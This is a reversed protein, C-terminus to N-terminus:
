DAASRSGESPKWNRKDDSLQLFAAELDAAAKITAAALFEQLSTPRTKTEKSRTREHIL